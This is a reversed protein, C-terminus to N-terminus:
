LSTTFYYADGFFSTALWYSNSNGWFALVNTLYLWIQSCNM